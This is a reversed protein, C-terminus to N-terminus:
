RRSPNEGAAAAKDILGSLHAVAHPELKARAAADPIGGHPVTEYAAYFSQAASECPLAM